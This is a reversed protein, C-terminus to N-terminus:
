YGAVAGAIRDQALHAASLNSVSGMLISFAMVRGSRNFCYGSLNSVGSITGTKTRCRGYAATGETRGAVTGERGTLALDQIFEEGAPDEQMGLLLDVVERPSARNSRTLGSGDVAQVVSGHSRSFAETVNAGAATTGVGGFRAGLLKMLMEAFYNNSYVNTLNAIQDLPPSRVLAVREADPPTPRLAIQPPVRVGASRLSRALKKAALKAPDSSFGSASSSGRFGANFALGSLPGIYPSTAYGSDAVGRRRDFVTDDAYLRGTISRIGAAKVQPTLAFVNTGLGGFYTNYFVPTGLAPDGGGQLYLSGHLVGKADIPGDVFVKTPIRYEPGLKSLATATTFLKMNSALPLSRGPARACLVQESEADVVLLGSASGGGQTLWSRMRDCTPSAQAPGAFVLLLAAVAAALLIASRRM